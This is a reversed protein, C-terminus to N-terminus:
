AMSTEKCECLVLEASERNGKAENLVKIGPMVADAIMSGCREGKDYFIFLHSSTKRRGM